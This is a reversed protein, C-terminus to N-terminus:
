GTGTSTAPQVLSGVLDVAFEKGERVAREDDLEDLVVLVVVLDIFLELLHTAVRRRTPM